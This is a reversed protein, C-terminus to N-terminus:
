SNTYYTCMGVMESNDKFSGNGTVQSLALDSEQIMLYIFANSAYQMGTLTQDKDLAMNGSMIHCVQYLPESNGSFPLGSIKATSSISGEDSLVIHFNVFVKDGVKTYRGQRRSYAVGSTTGSGELVPTWNGEEYDDLLESNTSGSSNGTASFDIGHGSAVVLNGDTLTLGNALTTNSTSGDILLKQSSNRSITFDDGSTSELEWDSSGSEYAITVKDDAEITGSIDVGSSTTSLKAVNNHYINVAGDAIAQILYENNAANMLNVQSGGIFLHGTGGENVFSNSGDHQITLDASAGLKIIDGDGLNLHTALTTEGTVGLTGAATVNGSFTGTTTDVATAIIDAPKKGVYPM